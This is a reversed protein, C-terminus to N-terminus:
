RSVVDDDKKKSDGKEAKSFDINLASPDFVKNDSM